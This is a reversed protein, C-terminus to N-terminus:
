DGESNQRRSKSASKVKFVMKDSQLLPVLKFTLNPNNLDPPNDQPFYVHYSNQPKDKKPESEQIPREHENKGKKREKKKSTENVIEYENGSDSHSSRCKKIKKNPASSPLETDSNSKHEELNPKKTKDKSDSDSDSDSNSDSSSSRNNEKRINSEHGRPTNTINENAGLNGGVNIGGNQEGNLNKKAFRLFVFYGAMILPYFVMIVIALSPGETACLIPYGRDQGGCNDGVGAGTAAFWVISGIYHTVCGSIPICHNFKFCRSYRLYQFMAFAWCVMLLIVVIELAIFVWEAAFLVSFMNCTNKESDDDCGVCYYDGSVDKCWDEYQKQYSDECGSKCKQLSGEFKGCFTTVDESNVYYGYYEDYSTDLYKYMCPQDDKTKVWSEALLCGIMLVTLFIQLAIFIFLWIRLSFKWVKTSLEM